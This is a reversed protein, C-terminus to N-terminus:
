RKLIIRDKEITYTINLNRCMSYIVVEVGDEKEFVGKFSQNFVIGTENVIRVGYWRELKRVLEDFPENNIALIGEKWRVKDAANVEMIKIKGNATNLLFQQDPRITVAHEGAYVRVSGEVLTASVNNEDGYTDMEFSTGLVETKIEQAVAIFPRSSDKAVEFYVNGRVEVERKEKGFCVPYRISSESNIWAKTGDSLQVSFREGAPVVMENYIKEFHKTEEWFGNVEYVIERRNIKHLRVVEKLEDPLSLSDQMVSVKQGDSLTLTIEKGQCIELNNELSVVEKPIRPWVILVIGILGVVAVSAVSWLWKVHRKRKSPTNMFRRYDRLGNKLIEQDVDMGSTLHWVKKFKEFYIRNKEQKIWKIFYVIEERSACDMLICVLLEDIDFNDSKMKETEM